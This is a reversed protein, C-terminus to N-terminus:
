QHSYNKNNINYIYIHNKNSKKKIKSQAQRPHKKIAKLIGLIEYGRMENALRLSSAFPYDL